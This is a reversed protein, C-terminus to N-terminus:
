EQGYPRNIMLDQESVARYWYGQGPQLLVDGYWQGLFFDATSYQVGDFATLRDGDVPESTFVDGDNMDVPVPYPSCFLQLGEQLPLVTQTAQPVQGLVFLDGDDVSRIWFGQGRLLNLSAGFWSGNFYDATKYSLDGTDWVMVRTGNSFGESGLVAAIGSQAPDLLDFANGLLKWQGSQLAILIYGAPRPTTLGCIIYDGDVWASVGSPNSANVRYLYAGPNLLEVVQTDPGAYIQSWTDGGDDSRELKYSEAREAAAWSVVFQGAAADGAYAIWAPTEPPDMVESAVTLTGPGHLWDVDGEGYVGVPLPEGDVVVSLLTQNTGEALFVLIRGADILELSSYPAMADSQQLRLWLAPSRQTLGVLVAQGGTPMGTADLTVDGMGFAGASRTDMQVRGWGYDGILVFDQMEDSWVLTPLGEVRTVHKVTTGGSHQNPGDLGLQFLRADSTDYSCLALTIHGEGSLIGGLKMADGDQRGAGTIFTLDSVAEVDVTFGARLPPLRVGSRHLQWVSGAEGNDFILKGDGVFYPTAGDTRAYLSGVTYDGDVTVTYAGGTEVSVTSGAEDPVIGGLWAATDSWAFNGTGARQYDTDTKPFTSNWEVIDDLALTSYTGEMYLPNGYWLATQLTNANVERVILRAFGVEEAALSAFVHVRMVPGDGSDVIEANAAALPLRVWQPAWPEAAVEVYYGLGVDSFYGGTELDFDGGDSRLRFQFVPKGTGADWVMRPEIVPGDDVLPDGRLAFKMFNIIGDDNADAMPGAVEEDWPDDFNDRRWIEQLSLVVLAETTGTRWDSNGSVNWAQVRYLYLGDEVTENFSLAAGAYREEWVVGGDESRELLYTEARAAAPWSVTFRGTTSQAPYTISAPIAPPDPLIFVEIEHGGTTFDSYGATNWSRVRYLYDGTGVVELAETEPGFQIETWSTGSDSSRELAYFAAGAAAPWSVTYQGDSSTEPYAISAPATPLEAEEPMVTLMGGGTFVFHNNEPEFSDWSGWTGHAQEFGDIYLGSIITNTGDQLEIMTSDSDLIHLVAGPGMVQNARFRVWLAKGAGGTGGATPMGTPDLTVDGAGFAGTGMADIQIRGWGYDGTRVFEQLEESWVFTPLGEVQTSHKFTIGGTNTSPGSEGLRFFTNDNTDFHSLAFTIHGPGSLIGGLVSATATSRATGTIVTLDTQAEINARFGTHYAALRTEASHLQWVSEGGPNDFILKGGGDGFFLNTNNSRSYLNGVTFDGDIWVTTAGYGETSVSIGAGSPVVGGHWAAPDSWNFTAPVAVIMADSVRFDTQDLMPHGLNWEVVEASAAMGGAVLAALTACAWLRSVARMRKM